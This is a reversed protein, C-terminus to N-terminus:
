TENTLWDLFGNASKEKWGTIKTPLISYILLNKSKDLPNIKQNSNSYKQVM